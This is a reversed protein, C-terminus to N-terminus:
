HLESIHGPKKTDKKRQFLYYLNQKLHMYSCLAYIILQEKLNQKKPWGYM